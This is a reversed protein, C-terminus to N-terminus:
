AAPMDYHYDFSRWRQWAKIEAIAVLVASASLLVTVPLFVPLTRLSASESSYLAAAATSLGEPMVHIPSFRGLLALADRLAGPDM